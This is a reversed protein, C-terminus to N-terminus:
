QTAEKLITVMGPWLWHRTYNIAFTEDRFTSTLHEFRPCFFPVTPCRFSRSNLRDQAFEESIVADPWLCCPICRLHDTETELCKGVM